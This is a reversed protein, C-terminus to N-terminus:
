RPLLVRATAEATRDGLQNEAWLEIDVIGDLELSGRYDPDPGESKAIVRGRCWTTDGLVNPRRVRANLRRVFGHDGMWLHLAQELWSIRQLGVDYIGPMGVERAMYGEMHGRAPHERAGTDPNTYADAPHQRRHIVDREHAYYAHGGGSYWSIMDVINLPGKVTPRIEDGVSVSDWTRIESGRPTMSLALQEIQEIEEASYKQPSRPDYSLGGAAKSRPIRATSGLASALLEGSEDRYDCRGTQIIFRSAFAGRKEVADVLEVDVQIRTRLPIERYWNWDTGAYVWQIGRLKPAVITTDITYLFCGPAIAQGWPSAAGYDEDTFLPNSDGISFCFRRVPDPDSYRSFNHEERRMHVGILERAEALSGEGLSPTDTTVEYAPKM